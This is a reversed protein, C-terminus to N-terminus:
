FKSQWMFWSTISKKWDRARVIKNRRETWSSEYDDGECNSEVKGAMVKNKMLSTVRISLSVNYNLALEVSLKEKNDASSQSYWVAWMECSASLFTVSQIVVLFQGTLVVLCCFSLEIRCLSRSLAIYIFQSMNM